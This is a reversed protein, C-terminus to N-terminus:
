DTRAYTSTLLDLYTLSHTILESTMDTRVGGFKLCVNALVKGKSSTRVNVAATLAENGAAAGRGGGGERVEGGVGAGASESGGGLASVSGRPRSKFASSPEPSALEGGADGGFGCLGGGPSHASLQTRKPMRKARFPTQSSPPSPLSFSSQGSPVSQVSQPQRIMGGGGGAGVKGGGENGGKSGRGGAAGGGGGEGGGVEGGDGAGEDGGGGGGGGEGSGGM